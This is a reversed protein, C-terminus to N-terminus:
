AIKFSMKAGEDEEDEEDDHYIETSDYSCAYGAHSRRYIETSDYSCAYGAHSCPELFTM